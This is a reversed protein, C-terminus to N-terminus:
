HPVLRRGLLFGIGLLLLGVIVMLPYLVWGSTIDFSFGVYFSGPTTWGSANSAADEARVRWYYPAEEGTSELKEDKTLTYQSEAIETKELVISSFGEDSAIQLTYTVPESDDTADDWDFYAESKSKDGDYPLLPAPIQPPTSEMTFTATVTNVGDTATVTQAGYQSKPITYVTSFKGNADTPATMSQGAYTITVTSNTQFGAGSITIDSGVNGTTQSLQVGAAVTLNVDAKNNDEDEAQVEYTGPSKSPVVFAVQFTGYEDSDESIVEDRDFEITVEVDMGFGTGQVTVSDGPAARDKNLTIEPEVTFDAEAESGADDIVRITHTGATNEPILIYLTFEGRSDTDEDGSEIDIEEDDFEVYIDENDAFDIGTIEVETGVVGDDPDLEIEAAIVALEAVARIRDQDAYTVCVYYTGGSVTVDDEGDTLEEPIKFSTDFDGSEDVEVNSKVQEYDEVDDDIYEGEDADEDDTLYIDVESYTYPEASYDSEPWDEGTIDISEGIEGEEPDLEIDNAALAPSAPLAVLLLSLIAVVALLRFLKRVSRM